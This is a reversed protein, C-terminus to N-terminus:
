DNIVSSTSEPPSSLRNVGFVCEKRRGVMKLAEHIWRQLSLRAFVLLLSSLLPSNRIFSYCCCCTSVNEASTHLLGRRGRSHSLHRLPPQATIAHNSLNLRCARSLLKGGWGRRNEPRYCRTGDRPHTGRLDVAFVTSLLLLSPFTSCLKGRTLFSFSGEQGAKWATCGTKPIVLIFLSCPSRAGRIQWPWKQALLGKPWILATGHM